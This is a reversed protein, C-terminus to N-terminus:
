GELACLYHNLIDSMPEVDGLSIVKIKIFSFTADFAKQCIKRKRNWDSQEREKKKKFIKARNSYAQKCSKHYKVEKAIFDGAASM